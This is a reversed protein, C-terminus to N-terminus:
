STLHRHSLRPPPRRAWARVVPRGRRPFAKVNMPALEVKDRTLAPYGELIEAVTAGQSLM